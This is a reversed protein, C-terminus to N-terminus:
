GMMSGEESRGPKLSSMCPSGSHTLAVAQMHQRRCSAGSVVVVTALRVKVVALWGEQRGREDDGFAASCNGRGHAAM